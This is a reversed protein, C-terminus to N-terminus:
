QKIIYDLGIDPNSFTESLLPDYDQRKQEYFGDPEFISAIFQNSQDLLETNGKKVAFKCELLLTLGSYIVTDEPYKSHLAHVEEAGIYADKRNVLFEALISQTDPYEAVEVGFVNPYTVGITGTLATFNANHIGFFDRELTNNTINHLDAFDKNLLAEARIYRYTDSFDATQARQTTHAMDAIIIDIESRDLADLLNAYDMTVIQLERDIAAAFENSLDVLIGTPLGNDDIYAFPEYRLDMGVKLINNDPTLLAYNETDNSTANCACLILFVLTLIVTILKKM